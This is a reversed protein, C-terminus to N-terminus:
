PPDGSTPPPYTADHPGFRFHRSPDRMRRRPSHRFRRRPRTRPARRFMVQFGRKVPTARRRSRTLAGPPRPVARAQCRAAGAPSAAERLLVWGGLLDQQLSLQYFRPPKAPWRANSCSSACPAIQVPARTRLRHPDRRAPRGLVDVGPGGRRDPSCGIGRWLILRLRGSCPRRTWGCTRAAACAADLGAAGRHAPRAAGAARAPARRRRGTPWGWGRGVAAGGAGHRGGGGRRAAPRRLGAATEIAHGFTHGFNLLAREGQETEDRAVIAAKHACSRAIAEALMAGRRGRLLDRPTREIWDFFGADVIAGYKVVEALGARLERPAPHAAHRHRRLVARPQHFAGVLNKGAPLDVATKGGVSSDVMALLTTPLQV